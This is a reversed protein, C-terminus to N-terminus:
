KSITPLWRFAETMAERGGSELVEGHAMVIRDFDWELVRDVSARAKVKDRFCMKILLTHGLSDGMRSLRLYLKTLWDDPEMRNVVLDSSILTRTKPHFFVTEDLIVGALYKDEIEQAWPLEDGERLFGDFRVDKRKKQLGKAGWVQATPWAAAADALFLHHYANPAVIYQVLGLGDSSEKLAGSIPIPAHIWLEDNALRVVTMRTNIQLGFVKLPAQAGGLDTGLGDLAYVAM